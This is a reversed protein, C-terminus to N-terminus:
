FTNKDRSLSQKKQSNIESWKKSDFIAVVVAKAYGAVEQPYATDNTPVFFEIHKFDDGEKRQTQYYQFDAPLNIKFGLDKNEYHYYGDPALEDMLLKKACGGIFFLGLFLFIFIFIKDIKKM